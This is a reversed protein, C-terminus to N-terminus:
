VGGSENAQKREDYRQKVEEFVARLRAQQKETAFPPAPTEIFQKKVTAWDALLSSDDIEHKNRKLQAIMAHFGTDISDALLQKYTSEDSRWWQEPVGIKVMLWTGSRKPKQPGTGVEKTHCIIPGDVFLPFNFGELVPAYSGRWGHFLTHLQVHIRNAEIPFDPGGMYGSSGFRNSGTKPQALEASYRRTAGLKVLLEVMKPNKPMSALDLATWGHADVHSLVAGRAAIFQVFDYRKYAVAHFLATRSRRDKAGLDAGGALLVKAVEVQGKRGAWILGTLGYTDRTDPPLGAQLLQRVVDPKGTSCARIFQTEPKAAM